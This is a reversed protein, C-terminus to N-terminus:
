HLFELIFTEPNKLQYVTRFREPHSTIVPYLYRASMRSWSFNDYVVHTVKEQEFFAIMREPDNIPPYLLGKCGSRLYFLDPRRSVVISAPSANLRMWDACSYFNRTDEPLRGTLGGNVAQFLLNFLLMAGPFALIAITRSRSRVIVSEDLPPFMAFPAHPEARLRFSGVVASLGTICFFYLMPVIAIVLKEGPEGIPLALITILYLISYWGLIRLPSFFNKIWGVLMFAIVVKSAVTGTFYPMWDPFPVMAQRILNLGYIGMNFGVRDFFAQRSVSEMAAFFSRTAPCYHVEAILIAAAFAGHGLAYRYRKKWGLTVIWALSFVIGIPAFALPLASGALAAFFLPRNAPDDLSKQLLALSLLCCVLYPIEGALATSYEALFGSFSVLLIFPWLQFPRLNPRFINYCLLTTLPGLLSFLLKVFMMSIFPFRLLLALLSPFAAPIRTEEPVAPSYVQHLGQGKALSQALLQFQAGEGSPSPAPSFDWAFLVMQAVIIIRLWAAPSFDRLFSRSFLRRGPAENRKKATPKTKM